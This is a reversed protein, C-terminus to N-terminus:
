LLDAQKRIVFLRPASPKDHGSLIVDSSFCNRDLDRVWAEIQETEADGGRHGPYALVTIVGGAALLGLAAQLAALTSDFRTIVAKDAGPLYGLNFMIARVLGHKEPPIYSSMLAHSALRLCVRNQLDHQLLRQFTNVLAQTQIDFGYVRGATGVTRALFVTDYGNGTTADIAVDGANLHQEVIRHAAGLLSIRIM